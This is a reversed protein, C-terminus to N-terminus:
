PKVEVGVRKFRDVMNQSVVGLEGDSILEKMPGHIGIWTTMISDFLTEGERNPVEKAAHWRSARDIMSLIIHQKYFMLDVEVLENFATALRMSPVTENDPRQWARCERCTDVIDPILNLVDQPM